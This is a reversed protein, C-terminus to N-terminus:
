AKKVMYLNKLLGHEDIEKNYTDVFHDIALRAGQFEEETYDHFLIRAGKDLDPWLTEACYLISDRLDCDILAFCFKSKIGPLTDQFFGKVPIVTDALGLRKIKSKVYEYSTSTFSNKTAKTLGAAKEKELEDPNFGEFSDCAYIKKPIHKSRLHNGMIISAGCRSSGCEIINGEMPLVYDLQSLLDDIDDTLFNTEYNVVKTRYLFPFTLLVRNLFPQPISRKVMLKWNM